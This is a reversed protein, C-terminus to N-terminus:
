ITGAEANMPKAGRPPSRESRLVALGTAASWIAEVKRRCGLM